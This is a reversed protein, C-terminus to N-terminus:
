QCPEGRANTFLTTMFRADGIDVKGDGNLDYAPDNPEGNRVDTMLIMYDTRDVCNDGNLDGVIVPPAESYVVTEALLGSCGTGWGSDSIAIRSELFKEKYFALITYDDAPVCTKCAGWVTRGKTDTVGSLVPETVFGSYAFIIGQKHLLKRLEFLDPALM